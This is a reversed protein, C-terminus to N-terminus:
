RKAQWLALEGGAATAIVSRWGAPGERPGLLVAAGHACARELAEQMCRVEVYPLWLARELACDVIGGGVGAGVAAGAGAGGGAGGGAGMDLALYSGAATRVREARWGCLAEYLARAEAGAGTHLELHVLPYSSRPAM